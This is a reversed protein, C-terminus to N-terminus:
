NVLPLKENLYEITKEVLMEWEKAIEPASGSVLGPIRGVAAGFTTFNFHYFHPLLIYQKQVLLLSELFSFDPKLLEERNQYIHLVPARFGNRNFKPHLAVSKVAYRLAIGGDLSIVAKTEPHLSAFLAITRGGFSHGIVAVGSPDVNSLGKAKAVIYEIDELQEGMSEPVDDDSKMPGSIRTQSPSSVVVYGRSAIEECLFTQHHLSQYNGQAVIVLPFKGARAAANKVAKMPLSFLTAVDKEKIGNSILMGTYQDLLLVSEKNNLSETRLESGSLLFYDRYQMPKMTSAAAPYWIGMQIPRPLTDGPLFRTSDIEVAVTFGVHSRSHVGPQALLLVFPSLLHCLLKGVNM